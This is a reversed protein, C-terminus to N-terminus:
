KSFRGISADIKDYKFFREEELKKLRNEEELLDTIETYWYDGIFSFKAAFILLANQKAALIMLEFLKYDMHNNCMLGSCVVFDFSNKMEHPFYDIQHLDFKVLKKYADKREAMALMGASIDFGTVNKFGLDSLRSGIMGTGCGLDLIRCTEPNHGRARAHKAVMNAVKEPDPYGLRTYIQEWVPSLHDYHMEAQSSEFGNCKEVEKIHEHTLVPVNWDLEGPYDHYKNYGVSVATEASADTLNSPHASKKLQGFEQM